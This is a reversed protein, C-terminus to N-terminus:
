STGRWMNVHRSPRIISINLLMNLLLFLDVSNSRLLCWMLNKTLGANKWMIMMYDDLCVPIFRNFRGVGYLQVCRNVVAPTPIFLNQISAERKHTASYMLSQFTKISWWEGMISLSLFEITFFQLDTCFLFIPFSPATLEWWVKSTLFENAIWYLIFHLTSTM